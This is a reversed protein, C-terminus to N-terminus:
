ALEISTRGEQNGGFSDGREKWCRLATEDTGRSAKDKSENRIKKLRPLRNVELELLERHKRQM